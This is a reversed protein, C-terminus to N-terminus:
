KKENKLAKQLNFLTYECYAKVSTDSNNVNNKLLSEIKLIYAYLESPQIISQFYLAGPETYASVESVEETEFADFFMEIFSDREATLSVSAVKPYNVSASNCLVSLYYQQQYMEEGTLKGGKKLPGWIKDYIIKMSESPTFPDDSKAACLETGDPANMILSMMYQRLRVSVPKKLSMKNMLVPDNLWEIDDLQKLLFSLAEKQKKSSVPEYSSHDDGSYKENLYIGGINSNVHGLYKVYQSFVANYISKRYSFDEDEDEVWSHFNKMIYKLNKIGYESAKVADDGLDETQSRPDLIGFFQQKGFRYVPDKYAERLWKSRVDYDEGADIDGLWTYAWKVLFEDYVGFRPPTLKLGKLSDEPQAVYNFRAYDMISTTTGYKQTYTASRLSDVPIHSSGSMNHMFGLCHGIEHSIVYRMADGIISDPIMTHRVRKDVQSTQVFLWNNLLEIVDHYLYVSANIIKGNRYDIWSPGMANQISVPAYRVCSYKLNDPDFAPDNEPFPVAKIANIFGAKEFMENWQNVGESIYPKWKDPFASDIYFVVPNMPEVKEGKLYADKDSPELDWINAYYIKKTGQNESGFLTKETPFIAIRSDTLRPNNVITDLLLVSRTVGVTFPVNKWRAGMDSISTKYSMISKVSINDEFAKASEIYSKDKENVADIKRKGGASNKGYKDIPTLFKDDNLFLDTANIIVSTSDSNYCERKFVKYIAADNYSVLNGKETIDSVSPIRMEINENNSLFVFHLPHNPKAGIIGNGNDSTSTITSGLLMDRGMITMPVELYVKGKKTHVTIFGESTFADEKIKEYDSKKVETKKVEEKKDTKKKSRTRITFTYASVPDSLLLLLSCSLLLKKM